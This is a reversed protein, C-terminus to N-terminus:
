RQGARDYVGVHWLGVHTSATPTFGADALRREIRHLDHVYGRSGGRVRDWINEAAWKPRNILGRWGRSEPVSIAIRKTALEVARGVLREVDGFCCIVRDLVVWDHPEVEVYAANGTEFIAQEGYGAQIARRRAVGVSAPSLDIGTARSAGMELLAVILGGTGCGLELVAPRRLTADRLLDLLRASVDVM